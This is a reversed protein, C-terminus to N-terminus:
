SSTLYILIEFRMIGKNIAANKHKATGTPHEEESFVGAASGALLADTSLLVDSSFLVSIGEASAGEETSLVTEPLPSSRDSSLM